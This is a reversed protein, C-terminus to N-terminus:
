AKRADAVDFVKLVEDGYHNIAKVAIKGTSPKFPFSGASHLTEWAEENIEAKLAKQLKEYPDKGGLFYAHRVFFSGEDYDTDLFWCAIDDPGSPKLEGTNPNFIDLGKIEVEYRGDALKRFDIDPEGFVVFLNGQDAAKLRDAMRLDQNMNVRLITLKGFSVTEPSAHAEFAFGCVILVDFNDIAERSAAVIMQRTVTGYEPGIFIAAKREPADETDHERYRAQANVYRGSFPRMTGKIFRLREGKKTNGVGATELNSLVVRVFDDSERQVAEMAGAPAAEGANGRTAGITDLMAPVDDNACLVRHPSLSEVTFPGAVRITGKDEYPQDYLFETEANRAIAADIEAQRSRRATWFQEHLPLAAVPLPDGAYGPLTQLTYNRGLLVNLDRLSRTLKRNHKALLEDTTDEDDELQTREAMLEVIKAHLKQCREDWPFVPPRPVQWENWPSWTPRDEEPLTDIYLQVAANLDTRAKDVDPQHKDWIVDIEANNAISKLTVHPVRRYVFGHAINHTFPGDSAPRGTINSEMGAGEPSDKLLYHPYRASMLRTRALTLAVRSTDITIWRRGWQEAVYATTGSGCTPDLVLDGPDTTMLLCREIVSAATQVVYTKDESRSSFRVDGWVNSLPMLPFDAFFRVYSLMRGRKEARGAKVLRRMGLEGSKWYGSLPRYEEGEFAVPFSGPPKQSVINDQRYLRMQEAYGAAKDLESRTARRRGSSPDDVRNYENLATASSTKSIWLDRYKLSDINKAYVLLFDCVNSLHLATQASTKMFTVTAVSNTPGFVEDLLGRALHVNEDGIQLIIAGSESLLDRSAILRDRLHALYTHIGHAWTDRFARVVEPERSFYSAVGDRVSPDRTSVQWNSNFKIGYPPDLYIMQVKGRLGEKEALSALVALSDGLILRNSWKLGVTDHEYYKLKDEIDPIGNFDAFLDPADNDYKWDDFGEQRRRIDDIIAKPHVKEQIYIPAADIQLPAADEEDKGKWVLQVNGEGANNGRWVLQPDLDINRRYLEPHTAPSYRRPFELRMPAADEEHMFSSNEQTPINTRRAGRHNLADVRKPPTPARPRRAM